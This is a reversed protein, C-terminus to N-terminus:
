PSHLYKFFYLPYSSKLICESIKIYHGLIGFSIYLLGWFTNKICGCNTIVWILGWCTNRVIMLHATGVDPLTDTWVKIIVFLESLFGFLTSVKLKNKPGRTARPLRKTQRMYLKLECECPQHGSALLSNFHHWLPGATDSTSESQLLEQSLHSM